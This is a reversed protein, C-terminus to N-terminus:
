PAVAVVVKVDEDRRELAESWRDLPVWRTVLRDLWSRDAAV